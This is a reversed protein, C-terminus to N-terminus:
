ARTARVLMPIVRAERLSQLINDRMAVFLQGFLLHLGLPPPGAAARAAMAEFWAIGDARRDVTELVRFGAAALLRQLTPPDVLFSAQGDRSWPVPYLPPGGPGELLDYLVFSGGPQLVRAIGAYLTAKDEINMAVHQTYAAAFSAAPFPLALADGALFRVRHDLGCRRTLERAVAVYDPTLDIGVVRLDRQQALFRAPGGLGSGVDLVEGAIGSPLAEMLEVTAQRGRVHFEDIPALDDVTLREPDKGAARLGEEIRALLDGRAYHAAVVSTREM